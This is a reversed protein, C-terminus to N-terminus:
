GPMAKMIADATARLKPLLRQVIQEQSVRAAHASVNIAAIVQGARNRLPVAISRVGQELEQDVLAFGWRGVEALIERLTAEDTVTNPTQAALTAKRFYADLQGPPLAALLVRGMSTAYAPLRTGVSLAVSMIRKTPVRVVYVIDTGDLVSCSSSEQVEAVLREMHPQAVDWLDMSSLYAYGLDLVKATLRFHKGDSEAYGLAQLTLLFRRAAARTMRTRAAVQTLTMAHADPGFARVVALGRALSAVFDASERERPPTRSSLAVNM